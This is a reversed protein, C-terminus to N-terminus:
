RAARTGMEVTERHRAQVREDGRGTAVDDDEDESDGDGYAKYRCFCTWRLCRGLDGWWRDWCAKWGGEGDDGSGRGGLVNTLGRKLGRTGSRLFSATSQRRAELECKWCKTRKMRTRWTGYAPHTRHKTIHTHLRSSPAGLSVISDRQPRAANPPNNPAFDTTVPGNTLPEMQPRSLPQLGLYSSPTAVSTPSGANSSVSQSPADASTEPLAPTASTGDLQLRRTSLVTLAIPAVEKVQLKALKHPCFEKAVRTVTVPTLPFDNQDRLEANGHLAPGLPLPDQLSPAAQGSQRRGDFREAGNAVARRLQESGQGQTQSVARTGLATSTASFYRSTGTDPRSPVELTERCFNNERSHSATEDQDSLSLIQTVLYRNSASHEDRVARKVDPDSQQLRGPSGARIRDFRGLTRQEPTNRVTLGQTMRGVSTPQSEADDQTAKTRPFLSLSLARRKQPAQKIRLANEAAPPTPFRELLEATRTSLDEGSAPATVSRHSQATPKAQAKPLAVSRGNTAQEARARAREPTVPVANGSAAFLARQSPSTTAEYRPTSAGSPTAFAQAPNTPTELNFVTRQALREHDLDVAPPISSTSSQLEIEQPTRSFPHAELEAYRSTAHGSVPPRWPRPPVIAPTPPAFVARLAKSSRARLQDLLGATRLAATPQTENPLGSRDGPWHPM